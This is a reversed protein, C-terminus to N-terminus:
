MNIRLEDGAQLQLGAPFRVFLRQESTELRSEVREGNKRISPKKRGGVWRGLGFSDLRLSGYGHRLGALFRKGNRKQYFEGWGDGATYFCRFSHEHIAPSFELCRRVADWRYGSLALLVAWSAMARAYHNGCEVENWPNRREGNYRDRVGRVISLGEKVFGEYILHSAVQYEIGTWVEDSYPFPLSPRGGKPWSCLVLGKEDNLAYVRQVSAHQSFDTRWNYTYIAQLASRVHSEDLLYGLGVVTAFWQGLLQDSLCGPGYQYRKVKEHDYKQVYYEGNFLEGDIKRRGKEFIARYADARADDGLSRAMEEGARLAGLYFSSTMTTWGLFEIDYTNHQEEELIGDKDKDWQEWAFELARRAHPWLSELFTRDGSLKWERYLKMVTGLQGDAAPRFQWRTLLLPLKTRFAMDGREDTNVEFDTMRMSRELDPFLHALAQEYNWVHTCNMPCCGAEDGCGEFAFFSGDETRLCTNTAVISAQSSVADLVFGPLTSSFLTDHFRRTDSELRTLDGVVYKAVSWADPWLSSYYNRLAKEKVEPEPDWYNVRNPFHWTLVFPLVASKNPQLRFRVGLSGVDTRGDPSPGEDPLSAIMGDESFDDWFQQIDDWWGTRPWHATHTLDHHTTVVAVSGYRIDNPEYKKSTMFLGRLAPEEVFTNFNSGFYKAFCGGPKEGEKAIGVPNVISFVITGSIERRSTNRVRWKFIATPISSDKSNHPIFPTFAELSVEVPLTEDLFDLWAIPYEGRFLADKLRPLGSVEGTPLGFASGFPPRRQAELVRAVETGGKPKVWIAFFTYPLNRGKAPRNFIEWDRLNGRGGLSVNGAGIGGLPFAIEALEAGKFSRVQPGSFLEKSTYGKQRFAMRNGNKVLQTSQLVTPGLTSM